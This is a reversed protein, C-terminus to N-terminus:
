VQTDSVSAAASYRTDVRVILSQTIPRPHIGYTRRPLHTSTGCAGSTAASLRM